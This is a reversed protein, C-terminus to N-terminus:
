PLWLIQMQSLRLYDFFWVVKHINTVTVFTIRHSLQFNDSTQWSGTMFKDCVNHSHIITVVKIVHSPKWCDYIKFIFKFFLNLFISFWNIKGIIWDIDVIYKCQLEILLWLLNVSICLFEYLWGFSIILLSLLPFINHISAIITLKFIYGITISELLFICALATHISETLMRGLAIINCELGKTHIRRDLNLLTGWWTANCLCPM